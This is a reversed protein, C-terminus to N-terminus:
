SSKNKRLYLKVVIDPAAPVGNKIFVELHAQYNRAPNISLSRLFLPIEGRLKYPKGFNLLLKTRKQLNSPQFYGM